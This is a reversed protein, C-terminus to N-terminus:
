QTPSVWMAETAPRGLSVAAQDDVQVVIADSYPPGPALGLRTGVLIGQDSLFQLLGPDDDAIREVVVHGSPDVTSLQDADPVEMTGDASPIPDGHPDRTPFSLLEDIRSIMFDSVAHELVEAEDHVQDWGYNLVRVLLTEILRHRRVMALAHARGAGTLSVAAYPAHEVLGQETLKRVADSVTSLKLGTKEAIITATVPRDSWEQLGWIVKVYNQTSASLQSVSVPM